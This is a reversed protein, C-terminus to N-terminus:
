GAQCKTGVSKVVSLSHTLLNHRCMEQRCVKASVKQTPLLYVSLYCTTMCYKQRCNLHSYFPICNGVCVTNDFGIIQRCMITPFPPDHHLPIQLIMSGM